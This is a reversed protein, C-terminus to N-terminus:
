CFDAALQIWPTFRMGYRGFRKMQGNLSISKVLLGATIMVLQIFLHHIQMVGDGHAMLFIEM